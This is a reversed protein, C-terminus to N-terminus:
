GTTDVLDNGMSTELRCTLQFAGQRPWALPIFMWFTAVPGTVLKKQPSMKAFPRLSIGGMVEFKVIRTRSPM